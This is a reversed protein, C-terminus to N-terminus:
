RHTHVHECVWMWLHGNMRVFVSGQELSFNAYPSLGSVAEHQSRGADEVGGKVMVWKSQTPEPLSLLNFLKSSLCTPSCRVRSGRVQRSQRWGPKNAAEEVFWCRPFCLWDKASSATHLLSGLYPTGQLLKGRNAPKENM